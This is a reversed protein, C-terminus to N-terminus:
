PCPSQASESALRTHAICVASRTSSASSFTRCAARQRLRESGPQMEGAQLGVGRELLYLGSFCGACQLMHLWRTTLVAYWVMQMLHARMCPTHPFHPSVHSRVVASASSLFDRVSYSACVGGVRKSPDSENESVMGM